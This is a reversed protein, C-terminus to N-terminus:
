NTLQQLLELTRCHIRQVDGSLDIEPKTLLKIPQNDRFWDHHDSMLHDVKKWVTLEPSYIRPGVSIECKDIVRKEEPRGEKLSHFLHPWYDKRSGTHHQKLAWKLIAHLRNDDSFLLQYLHKGLKIRESLESFHHVTAGTLVLKRDGNMPFLITNTNLLDQIKFTPTQLVNGKFYHNQIIRSEIYNQENIVLAITLLMSDKSKWYWKWIVQMFTSVHLHPLLHFLPKSQTKSHQYLLLQPFADQFILWNGRELFSFFAERQPQLLLTPYYEGKLDTMTWGANRSVLHALFSWHIEKNEKFFNLYAKTRTLNDRNHLSTEKLISQILQSETQTLQPKSTPHTGNCAERLEKKIETWYSPTNKSPLKFFSSLLRSM